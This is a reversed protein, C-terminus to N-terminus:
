PAAALKVSMYPPTNITGGSKAWDYPVIQAVQMRAVHKGNSVRFAHKIKAWALFADCVSRFHKTFCCFIQLYLLDGGFPFKPIISLGLRM